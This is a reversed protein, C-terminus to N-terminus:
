TQHVSDGHYVSFSKIGVFRGRVERCTLQPMFAICVSMSVCVSGQWNTLMPYHIVIRPSIPFPYLHTHCSFSLLGSNTDSCCLSSLRGCLVLALKRLKFGLSYWSTRHRLWVRGFPIDQFNLRWLWMVSMGTLSCLILHQKVHLIAIFNQNPCLNM